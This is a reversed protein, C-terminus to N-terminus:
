WVACSSMCYERKSVISLVQHIDNSETVFKARGVVKYLNQIVTYSNHNQLVLSFYGSTHPESVSAGIIYQLQFLYYQNLLQNNTM